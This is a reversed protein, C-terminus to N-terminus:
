DEWDEDPGMLPEIAFRYDDDFEAAEEYQRRVKDCFVDAAAKDFPGWVKTDVTFDDKAVVVYQKNSM